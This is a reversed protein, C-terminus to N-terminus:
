TYRGFLSECNYCQYLVCSDRAEEIITDTRNLVQKNSNCYPCKPLENM